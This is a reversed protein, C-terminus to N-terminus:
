ELCQIISTFVKRPLRQVYVTVKSTGGGTSTLSACRVVAEMVLEWLGRATDELTQHLSSGSWVRVMRTLSRLIWM